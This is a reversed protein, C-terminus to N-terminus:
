PASLSTFFILAAPPTSPRGNFNMVWFVFNFGSRVLFAAMSRISFPACIPHTVHSTSQDVGAIWSNRLLFSSVIAGHM